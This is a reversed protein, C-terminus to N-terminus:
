VTFKLDSRSRLWIEQTYVYFVSATATPFRKTRKRSLVTTTTWLRQNQNSLRTYDRRICIRIHVLKSLKQHMFFPNFFLSDLRTPLPSNGAPKPVQFLQFFSNPAPPSASNRRLPSENVYSQLRPLYHLHSLNIAHWTIATEIQVTRAGKLRGKGTPPRWNPPISARNGKELVGIDGSPSHKSSM